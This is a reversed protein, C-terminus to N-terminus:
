PAREALWQVLERQDGTEVAGPIHQRVWATAEFGTMGLARTAMCALFMGTRGIGASCHVLLRKGAKAATVAGAIAAVFHERQAHTPVDFDVIPFPRVELGRSRYLGFLDRGTQIRCDDEPALPIVLDINAAVILPFLRGEDDHRGYPMASRFVAGALGFPLETLEM